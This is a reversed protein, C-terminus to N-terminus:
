RGPEAIIEIGTIEYRGDDAEAFAFRVRAGARLDGSSVDEGIRFDMMMSPWGLEPVPGHDLTVVGRDRDLGMIEGEAWIPEEHPHGPDHDPDEFDVRQAEHGRDDHTMRTLANRLNSESDILFQSAVVIRQGEDLGSRVVIRDGVRPGTEVSVPMFRGEGDARVVHATGGSRIVADVPVTLAHAIEEAHIVVRILAGPNLANDTNSLRVRAEITRTDERLAPFVADIVGTRIAPADGITEVVVQMGTSVRPIDRELIEALAWVQSLDSLTLAATEPSVRMGEAVHIASVVGNQPAYVEIHEVFDRRSGIRAIQLDSVGMLRLRRRAAATGREDGRGIERVFDSVAVSLEPAFVEMLLDGEHVREGERRVHLRDVWGHSRVHVHRTRDEDYAIRGVTRIEPRLAQREAQAYRVSLANMVGPTLHVAGPEGPEEDEYVPILDMGMPSKGPRDRRYSPDMPAVWYLITREDQGTQGQVSDGRPWGGKLIHREFAWGSVAAVAIAAFISLLELGRMPAEM